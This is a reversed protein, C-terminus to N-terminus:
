KNNRILTDNSEFHKKIMYYNSKIIKILRYTYNIKSKNRVKIKHFNSSKLSLVMANKWIKSEIMMIPNM